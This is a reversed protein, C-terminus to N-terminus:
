FERGASLSWLSSTMGRLSAASEYALWCDIAYLAGRVNAEVRLQVLLHPLLADFTDWVSQTHADAPTTVVLLVGLLLQVAANLGDIDLVGLAKDRNNDVFLSGDTTNCVLRHLSHFPYPSRSPYSGVRYV